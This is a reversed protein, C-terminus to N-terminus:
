KFVPNHQVCKVFCKLFCKVMRKRRVNKREPGSVLKGAIGRVMMIAYSLKGCKDFRMRFFGEVTSTAIDFLKVIGYGM